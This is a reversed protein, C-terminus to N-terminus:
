DPKKHDVFSQVQVPNQIPNLKKTLRLKIKMLEIREDCDLEAYQANKVELANFSTILFSAIPFFGLFVLSEFVTGDCFFGSYVNDPILQLRDVDDAVGLSDHLFIDRLSQIGKRDAVNQLTADTLYQQLFTKINKDIAVSWYMKTQM